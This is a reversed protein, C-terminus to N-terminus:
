EQRRFGEKQLQYAELIEFLPFLFFVIIIIAM